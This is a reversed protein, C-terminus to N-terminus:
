GFRGQMRHPRVWGADKYNDVFCVKLQALQALERSVMFISSTADYRDKTILWLSDGHALGRINVRHVLLDAEDRNTVLEVRVDAERVSAVQFIRAM